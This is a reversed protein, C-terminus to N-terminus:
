RMNIIAVAAEGPFTTAMPQVEAADDGVAGGQVGDDRECCDSQDGDGCDALLM